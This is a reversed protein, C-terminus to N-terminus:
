FLLLSLYSMINIVVINIIVIIIIIIVVVVILRHRISLSGGPSSGLRDSEYLGDSYMYLGNPVHGPGM